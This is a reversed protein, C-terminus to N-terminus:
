EDLQGEAGESRTAHLQTAVRAVCWAPPHGLPDSEDQLPLQTIGDESGVLLRSVLQDEGQGGVVGPM